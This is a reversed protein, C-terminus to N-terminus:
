SNSFRLAAFEKLECDCVAKPLSKARWYPQANKPEIYERGKSGRCIKKCFPIVKCSGFVNDCMKEDDHLDGNTAHDHYYFSPKKSTATLVKIRPKLIELLLTDTYFRRDFKVFFVHWAVIGWYNCVLFLSVFKGEEGKSYRHRNSEAQQGKPVMFVDNKPNFDVHMPFSMEDAYLMRRVVLQSLECWLTCYVTRTAKHHACHHSIRVRKPLAVVLNSLSASRQLTRRSPICEEGDASEFTMGSRAVKRLPQRRLEYAVEADGVAGLMRKRGRGPADKGSFVYGNAEYKRLWRMVTDASVDVNHVEHLKRKAEAGRGHPPNGRSECLVSFILARTEQSTRSRDACNGHAIHARLNRVLASLSWLQVAYQM